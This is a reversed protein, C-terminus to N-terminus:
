GAKANGEIDFAPWLKKLDSLKVDVAYWEDSLKPGIVPYSGEDGAWVDGVCFHAPKNFEDKDFLTFGVSAPSTSSTCLAMHLRTEGTMHSLNIGETGKNANFGAGSWGVNAVTLSTYGEFNMEDANWGPGPNTPKGAVFTGDWVYLWRTQDDPGISNVKKGLDTLKNVCTENLIVVDFVSNAANNAIPELYPTEATYQAQAAVSAAIMAAVFTVKKM